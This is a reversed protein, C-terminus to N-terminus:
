LRVLPLTTCRFSGPLRTVESYDVLLPEIGKSALLSALRTSRQQMVVKGPAVVFTNIEVNLTEQDTAEILEFHREFWRLSARTFSKPHILALNPGVINFKTDMHIVGRQAFELQIVQRDNGLADLARRLAEVGAPSTEEGLGVLVHRDHLLVDGGEIQGQDLQAVRSLRPLLQALGAIEPQRYAKGMRSVFFVDDIVFGIDRTYHQSVSGPLNQAFLVTAGHATFLDALAQQQQRVRAHNYSSFRNHLIQYAGGSTLAAGIFSPTLEWPNALVMVVVKLPALESRVQVIISAGESLSPQHSTFRTPHTDPKSAPLSPSLM